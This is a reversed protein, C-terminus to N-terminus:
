PPMDLHGDPTPLHEGGAIVDLHSWGEDEGTLRGRWPEDTRRRRGRQRREPTTARVLVARGKIRRTMVALDPVAFADRREVRISLRRADRAGKWRPREAVRDLGDASSGRSMSM